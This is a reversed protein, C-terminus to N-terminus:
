SRSTTKLSPPLLVERLRGTKPEELLVRQDQDVADQFFKEHSIAQRLAETMSIGRKAAIEKLADVVASSLNASIKIDVMIRSEIEHRIRRAGQRWFYPFIGYM